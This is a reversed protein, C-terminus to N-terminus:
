TDLPHIHAELRDLDLTAVSRARSPEAPGAYGPNLFLTSGRQEVVARHTHGYILVHPVWERVVRDYRPHIRGYNDYWHCLFVRRRRLNLQLDWPFRHYLHEDGNGSVAVVPAIAGLERVVGDAGIDGAHLILEVEARELAEVADPLVVGHTDSIIGIRRPSM